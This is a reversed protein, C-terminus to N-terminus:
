NKMFLNDLQYITDFYNKVSYGKIKKHSYLPYDNGDIECKDGFFYIDQENKLIMPIIDMVQAKDWNPLSVSFGANGGKVIVFNKSKNKLKSLTSKIFNNKENYEFFKNRIIDDAKMGPISFYVLGSRIDINDGETTINNEIIIEKFLNSLEKLEIAQENNLNDLMEKKHICRFNGMYNEYIIAGCESFIYDFLDICKDLQYTIKKIDGGGVIGYICKTENKLNLLMLTMDDSIKKGSETLTGDVDFLILM